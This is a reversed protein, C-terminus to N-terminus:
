IYGSSYRDFSSLVQENRPRTYRMLTQLTTRTLKSVEAPTAGAAFLDTIRSAKLLHLHVKRGIGAFAAYENFRRAATWYKMHSASQVNLADVGGPNLFIFEASGVRCHRRFAILDAMLTHSIWGTRNYGQKENALSVTRTEPHLDQWRIELTCEARGGLEYLLRLYLAFSEDGGRLAADIIATRENPTLPEDRESDDDRYQCVVDDVFGAIGDSRGQYVRFRSYLKIYFGALRVTGNKPPRRLHRDKSNRVGSRFGEFWTAVQDETPDLTGIERLMRSVFCAVKDAYSPKRRTRVWRHFSNVEARIKDLTADASSSPIRFVVKM